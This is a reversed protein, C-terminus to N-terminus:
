DVGELNVTEVVEGSAADIKELTLNWVVKLRAREADAPSSIPHIVWGAQLLVDPEQEAIFAQAEAMSARLGAPSGDPKLIAFFM